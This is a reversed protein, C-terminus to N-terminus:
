RPMLTGSFIHYPTVRPSACGLRAIGRILKLNRVPIGRSRESHSSIALCHAFVRANRGACIPQLKIPPERKPLRALDDCIQVRESNAVHIRRGIKLRAGLAQMAVVDSIM